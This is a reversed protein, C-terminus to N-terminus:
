RAIFAAHAWKLLEEVYAILGAESRWWDHPGFPEAAAAMRLEVDTGRLERRLHWRTRRTHYDSTVVLVREAPHRRLFAALLRAEEATSTTGAGGDLILVAERPVGARELVLVAAETQSPYVDRLQPVPEAARAIFIREALGRHYLAAAHPPRAATGGNLLFIFDAPAVPDSVVAARGAAELLVARGAYALTAVAILLAAAAALRRGHATRRPARSVTSPPASPAEAPASTSARYRRFLHPM